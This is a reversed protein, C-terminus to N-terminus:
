PRDEDATHTQVRRVTAQHGIVRRKKRLPEPESVVEWRSLGGLDASSVELRLANTLVVDGGSVDRTGYLLQASQVTERTGTTPDPEEAPGPLTLRCRFWEGPVEGYVTRGEVRVGTERRRLPRAEDVLASNLGM